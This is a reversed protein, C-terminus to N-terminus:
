RARSKEERRRRFFGQVQDACRGALVGGRIEMVHNLKPHNLVEIVSRVAGAKPDDAGYVLRKLRALVLAGACMACPEITVFMECDLLRHNGLALGAERLAVIEAHATPDPGALNQNFGRGVIKSECVIIAGVPVEGIELARQGARLAEEMWLEDTLPAAPVNAM